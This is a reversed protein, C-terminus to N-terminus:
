FAISAAMVEDSTARGADMAMMMAQNALDFQRYQILIRGTQLYAQSQGLGDDLGM